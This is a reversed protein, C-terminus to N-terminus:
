TNHEAISGNFFDEIFRGQDNEYTRSLQDIVVDYSIQPNESKQLPYDWSNYFNEIFSDNTIQLTLYDRFLNSLNYSILIDGNRLELLSSADCEVILTEKALDNVTLYFESLNDCIVEFEEQTSVLRQFRSKRNTRVDVALNRLRYKTNYLKNYNSVIYNDKTFNSIPLVENKIIKTLSNKFRLNNKSEAEANLDQTLQIEISQISNRFLMRDNLILIDANTRLFCSVADLEDLVIPEDNDNFSTNILVGCGTKEKYLNLIEHVLGCDESSIQVRATDDVHVIAPIMEKAKKTVTVAYSMFEHNRHKSVFFKDFDEPLCIPAFPRYLERHKIKQNLIEKMKLTTANAIFSRRGLARPGYEFGGYFLAIVADNSLEDVIQSLKIPQWPLSEILNSKIVPVSSDPAFKPHRYSRLLNKIKEGRVDNQKKINGNFCDNNITQIVGNFALGVSLGSDASDPFVYIEDFIGTNVLVENAVCNLAVGGSLCLKKKGTVNFIEKALHILCKELEKQLEYALHARYDTYLHNKINLNIGFDDILSLNPSRRIVGSYDVSLSRYKGQFNIEPFNFQKQLNLGFPALGMVKGEEGSKFGILQTVLTYLAGIGPTTQSFIKRLQGHESIFISHTSQKSGLGDIALFAADEFSSGFWSSLAHAEHHEISNIIQENKIRLNKRIYDGILQRYTNSTGIFSEVDMFDTTITTLDEIALGFYDLCAAISRSPFHYSKKRRSLMGEEFHIFECNETGENQSLKVIAASPDHSCYAMIGLHYTTAGQPAVIGKSRIGMLFGYGAYQGSAICRRWRIFIVASGEGRALKLGKPLSIM